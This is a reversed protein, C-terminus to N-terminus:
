ADAKIGKYEMCLMTIDDFQPANDVFLDVDSRVARLIAEPTANAQKNLAEVMRKTGFLENDSNTAEAVGDTYVFLKDGPQLQLEYDKYRIGEMSGIVLGHKDKFLEFQEGARMLAPYEHGANAAIIRGTSIELIGLWVTVFMENENQRSIIENARALIEGASRGPIANNQLITKSIMMVLAAPVGKGSVDAIVMCLHDDDILFYDYFDGGVEKAPYMSAYIEFETKDPFAPFIHPLMSEQIRTALSLETSIREKEATARALNDMYESMSHEMDAMVLSLNEVEDGTHIDLQSFHDRGDVGNQRDSVYSQAAEAITTIPEALTKQIRRSSSIGILVTALSLAIVYGIVFLRMGRQVDALSIDVFVFALIDGESDYIPVGSTCLWGYEATNAIEYIRKDPAWNLFKDIGDRSVSEWEGPMLPDSEEPDVIYIMATNKVDFMAM